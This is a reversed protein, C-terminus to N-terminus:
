DRRLIALLRAPEIYLWVVTAILGFAALWGYREPLGNRCGQEVFDFDLALFLCALTAGALGLLIGLPGTRFGAGCRRRLVRGRRALRARCRPVRPRRGPRDPSSRPSGCGAARTSRSCPSSRSCRAWSRGAPRHRGV